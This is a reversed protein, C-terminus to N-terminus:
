EGTGPRAPPPGEDLLDADRLATKLDALEKATAQVQTWALMAFTLDRTGFAIGMTGFAEM